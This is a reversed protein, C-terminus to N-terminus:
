AGSLAITSFVRAARTASYPGALAGVLLHADVGAVYAEDAAQRDGVGAPLM